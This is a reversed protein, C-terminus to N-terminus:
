KVPPEPQQQQQKPEADIKTSDMPKLEMSITKSADKDNKEANKAAKQRLKWLKRARQYANDMRKVYPKEGEGIVMVRRGDPVRVILAPEKPKKRTYRPHTDGTYYMYM